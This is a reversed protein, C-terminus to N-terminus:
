RLTAKASGAGRNAAADTASATVTVKVRKALKLAKRGNSSLKVKVTTTGARALRFPATGLTLRRPKAKRTVRVKKTTTLAASGACAESCRVSVKVTGNRAVKAGASVTVVPKTTDRPRPTDDPRPDDLRPDDPRPTEPAVQGPITVTAPEGLVRADGTPASLVVDFTEDSEFTGDALAAIPVTKETEGAAFTVTTAVPTYDAGATATGDQTRVAVTGPGLPAPGSRRLTLTGSAGEALQVARDTFAVVAAPTTTTRVSFKKSLFGINNAADDNVYLKWDGNPDTFDFASLATAYPGAPAPAPWVDAPALDTPRAVLDVGTCLFGPLAGAAEDDFTWKVNSVGQDGCADSALVVKQGQPGVLLMDLDEPKEHSIGDVVVDVDRLVGSSGAIPFVLPYPGAPGETGTAPLAAEVPGTAISLSWGGELDGDDTAPTDDVMYLGWDGNPSEGRLDDLTTPPGPAIGPFSDPTGYNAPRYGFDGCDSGQPIAKPTSQNFVWTYDEVDDDGCADSMIIVRTGSPSILLIDVDQPRTHGFKHLTVSVDTIPGRLGAVKITSPYPSATGLPAGPGPVTLPTPNSFSSAALASGADHLQVAAAVTLLLALLFRRYSLPTTTM